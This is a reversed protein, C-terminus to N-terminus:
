LGMKQKVETLTSDALERAKQESAELIQLVKDPNNEFEKRKAQFPKIFNVVVEALDSKFDSYSKGAYMTEIQKLNKINPDLIAYINILNTIGPKNEEDNIIEKGSDTTSKKIKSRILDPEDSLAIGEDGTKSMKKLPDQLSMIRTGIALHAKVPQFTEGFMSNFKRGIENALDIHPM